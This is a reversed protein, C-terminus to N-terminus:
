EPTAHLPEDLLIRVPLKVGLGNPNQSLGKIIRPLTNLQALPRVDGLFVRFSAADDESFVDDGCCLRPLAIGAPQSVARKEIQRPLFQAPLRRAHALACTLIPL